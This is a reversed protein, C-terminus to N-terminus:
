YGDSLGFLGVIASVIDHNLNMFQQSYVILQYSCSLNDEAYNRSQQSYKELEGETLSSFWKIAEDHFDHQPVLKMWEKKSDSFRHGDHDIGYILM